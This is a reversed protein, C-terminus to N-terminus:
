GTAEKAELDSALLLFVFHRVILYPSYRFCLRCGRLVLFQTHFSAKSLPDLCKVRHPVVVSPWTCEVSGIGRVTPLKEIPTCTVKRGEDSRLRWKSFFSLKQILLSRKNKGQLQVLLVSFPGLHVTRLVFMSCWLRYTTHGYVSMVVVLM